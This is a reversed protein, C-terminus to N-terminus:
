MDVEIQKVIKKYSGPVEFIGPGIEKYWVVEKDPGDRMKEMRFVEKVYYAGVDTAPRTYVTIRRGRCLEQVSKILFVM